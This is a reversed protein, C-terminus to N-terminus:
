RSISLYIIEQLVENDVISLGIGKMSLELTIKPNKM